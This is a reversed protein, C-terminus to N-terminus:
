PISNLYRFIYDRSKTMDYLNEIRIIKVNKLIKPNQSSLVISDYDDTESVEVYNGTSNKYYKKFTDTSSDKHYEKFNGNVTDKYWENVYISKKSDSPNESNYKDIITGNTEDRFAIKEGNNNVKYNVGDYYKKEFDNSNKRVDVATETLLASLRIIKVFSTMLVVLLTFGAMIEVLTMGKNNLKM